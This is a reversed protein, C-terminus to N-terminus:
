KNIEKTNHICIQIYGTSKEKEKIEKINLNVINEKRKETYRENLWEQANVM